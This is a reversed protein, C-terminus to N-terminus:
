ATKLPQKVGSGKGLRRWVEAFPHILFWYLLAAPLTVVVLTAFYYGISSLTETM